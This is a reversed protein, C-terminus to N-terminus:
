FLLNNTKRGIFVQLGRGIEIAAKGVLSVLVWSIRLVGRAPIPMRLVIDILGVTVKCITGCREGCIARHGAGHGAGYIIM